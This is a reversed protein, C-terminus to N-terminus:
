RLRLRGVRKRREYRGPVTAGYNHGLRSYGQFMKIDEEQTEMTGATTIGAECVTVMVKHNTRM